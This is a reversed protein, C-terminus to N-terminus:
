VLPQLAAIALSNRSAIAVMMPTRGALDEQDPDFHADLLMQVCRAAMATDFSYGTGAAAEHLATRGDGHPTKNPRCFPLLLGVSTAQAAGAADMLAGEAMSHIVSLNALLCKLSAPNGSKAALRLAAAGLETEWGDSLDERCQAICEAIRAEDAFSVAQRLMAGWERISRKAKM